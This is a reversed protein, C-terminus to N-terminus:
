SGQSGQIDQILTDLEDFTYRKGNFIATKGDVTIAIAGTPDHQATIAIGRERLAQAWRIAATSAGDASTLVLPAAHEHLSPQQKLIADVYYAFGVAPVAEDSGLLKTLDDYRGGGVLFEGTAGQIGFVIGTYYDWDRAFDAQIQVAESPVGYAYLLQLLRRWEALMQRGRTDDNMIWSAMQAFATEPDGPIESWTQIFAQASQIRQHNERRQQKQLLRQAIDKSTRGGMTSSYRASNLLTDLMLQTQASHQDEAPLTGPAEVPQAAAQSTRELTGFKHQTLLARITQTDLGFRSLLHMQLGVHGLVLRWGTIGQKQIGQAAMAIVEADAETSGLGICEAGISQKQYQLSHDSPEDEFIAGAFQWRVPHERQEAAYRYSAAATFEPRLALLTGYREFTFLREMIADGARTLFIEAPQITPVSLLEYGFLAMHESLAHELQRVRRLDTSAQTM